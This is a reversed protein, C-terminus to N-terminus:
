IRGQLTRVGPAPPAGGAKRSIEGWYAAGLAVAEDPSMAAVVRDRGAVQELASQVAPIRSAGGVLLVTEIADWGAVGGKQLVEQVVPVIELTLNHTIEEFRDRSIEM